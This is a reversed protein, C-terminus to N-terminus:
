IKAGSTTNTNKERREARVGTSVFELIQKTKKFSLISSSLFSFSCLPLSQSLLLVCSSTFILSLQVVQHQAVQQVAASASIKLSYKLSVISLQLSMALSDGLWLM